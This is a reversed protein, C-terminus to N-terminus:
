GLAVDLIMMLVFGVITSWVCFTKNKEYGEPLLETLIVLFMAGAAFSLFWPMIESISSALFFGVVAMVPEVIGSAVALLFGKFKSGTMEKMPLAVAAGEPINQIGLGISLSLAMALLYPDSLSWASGFAVGVALGEPLNHITMALFLKSSKKMGFQSRDKNILKCVFDVLLIFACGILFGIAAPLFSLEGFGESQEIAPLILSWISAAFMIGASLGTIFASTRDNVEKKFLFVALAGLSTMAFIFCFGFIVQGIESM